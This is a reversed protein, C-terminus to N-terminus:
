DNSIHQRYEKIGGKYDSVNVFGKKMLEEIALESANCKDHACYCLIPIEYIDIKKNKLYTFLKPYHLEVVELFWKQLDIVSMKKIDKNFLNYSNPIHDKAYYQCPLANIIVYLGSNIMEITKKFNYKCVVIKTYIQPLWKNNDKNSVVFHLHRFFTQKKSKNKAVTSYLQPCKFKFCAKGNIVSTVGSNEFKHYAKKADSIIPSHSFKNTAAWYLIKRGEFKNLNLDMKIDSYKPNRNSFNTTNNIFQEVYNEKYLWLPKMDDRSKVVKDISFDLCSACVQDSM